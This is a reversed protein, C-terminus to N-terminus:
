PEEVIAEYRIAAQKVAGARIYDTRWHDFTVLANSQLAPEWGRLASRVLDAVRRVESLNGTISWCDIQIMIDGGTICDADASQYNSAGISIYPAADTGTHWAPNPIDVIRSSAVLATLDADARLRMIIAGQLELVPDM